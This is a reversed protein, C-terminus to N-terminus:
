EGGFARFVGSIGRLKIANMKATTSIRMRVLQGNRPDSSPPVGSQSLVSIEESLRFFSSNPGASDMGQTLRKM